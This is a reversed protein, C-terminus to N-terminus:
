LSYLIGKDLIQKGLMISTNAKAKKKQNEKEQFFFSFIKLAVVKEM